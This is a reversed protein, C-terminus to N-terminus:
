AIDVINRETRRFHYAGLFAVPLVVVFGLAVMRWPPADMGQLCWRVGDVVNALPNMYYLPRWHEPIMSTAYVVPTAYMLAKLLYDLVTQLDRYHVVWFAWWLGVALGSIIALGLYVPLFVVGAGPTWHYHAMLAILVLLSILFNFVTSLVGVLPMVLRPFYVKSILSRADLLSSATSQATGSFLGWALLATYNFLPYPVGKPGLGALKGFVLTFLLMNVVPGVLIWLPGLAMQRYRGKLDRWLFFFLLDRYQWIEHLNLPVWGQVANIETTPVEPPITENPIPKM